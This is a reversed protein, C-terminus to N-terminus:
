GATHKLGKLVGFLNIKQFMEIFTLINVYIGPSKFAVIVDRWVLFLYLVKRHFLLCKLLDYLSAYLDFIPLHNYYMCLLCLVEPM